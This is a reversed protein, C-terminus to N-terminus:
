SADDDHLTRALAIAGARDAVDGAYRAEAIAALLPGLAPGPAIGLADALEDGRVLPAAPGAAHWALADGLLESALDLHKVTAPGANDGRTAIRDAVSLLSVDVEVPACATLYAYVQRRSLPRQHVLFGLRLHHLALAAVHARLRESAHLRTLIARSMDAGQRDHDFFTVHGDDRRGQTVPKAIDHLIAGFRLAQGRTLEDALPEALFASIAPAVDRGLFSPDAELDVTAQLVELTHGHVDKSHFRNQEVGRLAAFEPLVVAEAGTAHLLEMGDVARDAALLQKLEAFIREGAVDRLGPAHRRAADLAAEDPELGLQVALRALRMVRLPDDRLAAESVVRLRRASVDGVGDHPDVLPGGALPEAIANVTFDRLRLDAEIAGGRLPTLDIQWAREPGMVRWTDFAESVRFSPGGAQLALHRAAGRVDGDVVLDVDVIARHLLQDRVAGGVVWAREGRLAERAADLAASM